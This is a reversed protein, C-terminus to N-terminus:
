INEIFITYFSTNKNEFTHLDDNFLIHLLNFNVINKKFLHLKDDIFIM